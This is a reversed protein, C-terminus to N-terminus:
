DSRFPVEYRGTKGGASTVELLMIWDARGQACAPLTVEGRWAGAGDPLLRYRNFGMDMGRMSFSAHLETADPIEVRLRFPQMQKPQRDFVVRLRAQPLECGARVDACPIAIARQAEQQRAMGWRLLAVSGLLLLGGGVLAAWKWVPRNM